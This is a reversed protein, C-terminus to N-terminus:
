ILSYIILGLLGAGMMVLIPSSKKIQLAAVSAVAIGIAVFDIDSAKFSVPQGGWFAFLLITLGASAILAVVAPRLGGLIGQMLKLSRYKYYLMALILVIILSPCVFGLTAIAAGAPGAVHLGVFTAANIAIPGPTMQSLTVVDAFETLNLWPHVSVTQMQILPLAAYGGGFSLLGIQFFSWFLQLFIM